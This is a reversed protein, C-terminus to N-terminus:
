LLKQLYVLKYDKHATEKYIEYGLKKYLAISRYSEKGTLLWYRKIKTYQMEAVNMLMSGIGNGQYEDLVALRRIEAEDNRKVVRISGIIKEDYLAVFILSTKMENLVDEKEEVMPPMDYDNYKNAQFLFAKKQIKLIFEADEKIAKRITIDV